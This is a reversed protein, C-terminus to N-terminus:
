QIVKYSATKSMSLRGECIKIEEKSPEMQEERDVHVNSLLSRRGESLQRRRLIM